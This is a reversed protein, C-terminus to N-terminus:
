DLYGLARLAERHQPDLDFELRGGTESARELLRRLRQANAEYGDLLQKLDQAASADEPYLDKRERPDRDLEYYEYRYGEGDRYRLLKRPGVRVALTPQDIRRKGRDLLGYSLWAESFVPRERWSPDPRGGRVVDAFSRGMVGPPVPAGALELLTPMLDVLGVPFDLRRGGPVGAGHFLLPVRVVEEYPTAGHGYFGHELFEEGHDSTIVLLTNELLGAQELGGVFSRLQDDVYRIERDYHVPRRHWLLRPHPELGPPTSRFLQAYAPPPRYPSHVEYTHLFLFFPREGVQRVWDLGLPFTVESQLGPRHPMPVPNEVWRGFGRDFGRPLALAGGENVAATAFGQERLAEALTVAAGPLAFFDADYVGHVSPPLSTFLTMHSPGTTTASSIAAEFLASRPALEEDLFPATDRPYGYSALHDARLTDLSILVLNVSREGRPASALVVPDAWLPFSYADEADSLLESEFVFSRRSGALSGLGVSRDRWRGAEAAGPDLVEEFLEACAGAECARVRFAVPGQAWASELLGIAFELDAHAPVEVPATELRQVPERPPVRAEVLVDLWAEGPAPARRPALLALDVVPGGGSARVRALRADHDRYGARAGRLKSRPELVLSPEEAVVRPVTLELSVAGQRPQEVRDFFIRVTPYSRLVPRRDLAVTARPIRGAHPGAALEEV